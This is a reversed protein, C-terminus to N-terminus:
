DVARVVRFGAIQNRSDPKAVLRRDFELMQPPDNWSGGRLLREDGAACSVAGTDAQPGTLAPVCDDVWEWVNGRTDVLGWGNAAFTGAPATFTHGDKCAAATWSTFTEKATEDAGNAIRCQDAGTKAGADVGGAGAVYHWEADRPLRYTKGTTGSLWAAYAAADDYSVCAVPHDDEQPYGPNEWSFTPKVAGKDIQSRCGGDHTRGTAKVFARYEGRTVEARGVALMSIARKIEKRPQASGAPQEITMRAEGAPALVMAPCTACDRFTEGGGPKLWAAGGGTTAVRVFGLQTMRATVIRGDIGERELAVLQERTTAAAVRAEPSASPTAAPTTVTTSTSPQPAPTTTAAPPATATKAPVPAPAGGSMQQWVLYGLWAVAAFVAAALLQLGYGGGTKVPAADVEPEAGRQRLETLKIRQHGSAPAARKDAAKVPEAVKPAAAAVPKEPKAPVAKAPASAPEPARKTEALREPPKPTATPAPQALATVTAPAAPTVAPTATAPQAAVTALAADAKVAMPELPKGTRAGLLLVRFAQLSQPRTEVLPALGKAIAALFEKSWQGTAAERDLSPLKGSSGAKLADPPAVGTILFHLTAAIGLVDTAASRTEAEVYRCEPARFPAEAPPVDADMRALLISRAMAPAALVVDRGNRLRVAGPHVMCHFAGIRHADTLAAILRDAVHAVEDESPKRGLGRRWEVIDPGGGADMVVFVTGHAEFCGHTRVLAPHGLRQSTAAEERVLRRAEMLLEPSRDKRAIVELGRRTALDAPMLERVTRRAGDAAGEAEYLIFVGDSALARVIRLSGTPAPAALTTGAPLAM